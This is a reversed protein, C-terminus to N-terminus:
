QGTEVYRHLHYRRRGSTKITAEHTSESMSMNPILPDNFKEEAKDWIYMGKM